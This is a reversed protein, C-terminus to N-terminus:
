LLGDSKLRDTLVDVIESAAEQKLHFLDGRTIIQSRWIRKKLTTDYVSCQFSAATVFSGQKVGSTAVIELVQQPRDRAIASALAGPGGNPGELDVTSVTVGLASWKDSIAKQLRAPTVSSTALAGNAALNTAVLVRTLKQQCTSDKNAEIIPKYSECAAATLLVLAVVVFRLLHVLKEGFAEVFVV